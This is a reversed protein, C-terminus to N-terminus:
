LPTMPVIGTENITISLKKNGLELAIAEMAERLEASPMRSLIVGIESNGVTEVSGWLKIRERQALNTLRQYLVVELPTFIPLPTHVDHPMNHFNGQVTKQISRVTELIEDTIDDLTRTIKIENLPVDTFISMLGKEFSPWWQDFAKKIRDDPLAKEKDMGNIATVLKAVNEKATRTANFQSLPPKLDKPELDVLFTCVRNKTLGKSLAGAEFLIWPANLNEKTLCIIGVTTAGLADNINTFWIDGKAIDDPSFWPEASQIVNPIWENLLEAVRKSLEGSWSLFVKMDASLLM